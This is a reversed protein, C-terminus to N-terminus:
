WQHTHLCLRHWSPGSVTSQALTLQAAIEGVTHPKCEAFYDVIQVRAPHGLAKAIAAMEERTLPEPDVRPDDDLCAPPPTLSTLEM